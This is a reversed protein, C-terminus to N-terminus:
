RSRETVPCVTGGRKLVHTNIAEADTALYVAERAALSRFPGSRPNLNVAETQTAPVPVVAFHARMQPLLAPTGLAMYMQAQGARLAAYATTDDAVTLFTLRDLKPYGAHWYTKNATLVLSTNLQDSAVVFPGAGVPTASFATEGMRRLATPSVVWNPAADVFADILFPDAASLHLAVHHPNLVSVSRVTAFNSLCRCGASPALDRRLNFVVAAADFPTGDSFTVGPRLALDVESGDASVTAGTALEPVIRGAPGRRFLQGYVANFMDHNISATLNTLPDLGTWAGSTSALELVTASRGNSSPTSSAACASTATTAVLTAVVALRRAWRTM